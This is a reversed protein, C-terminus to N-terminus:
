WACWDCHWISVTTISRRSRQPGRRKDHGGGSCGRRRRRLLLLLMLLLLGDDAYGDGRSVGNRPHTRWHDLPRGIASSFSHLLSSLVTRPRERESQRVKCLLRRARMRAETARHQLRRKGDSLREDLSSLFCLLSSKVSTRLFLLSLLSRVPRGEEEAM